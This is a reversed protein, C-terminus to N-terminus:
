LKDSREIFSVVEKVFGEPNEEAVYHAAASVTRAEWKGDEVVESVMEEAEAAHRSHEGSLVLTPVKLKGDRELRARNEKADEPFAAYVEAANKFAGPKSYASVYENIDVLSFADEAYNIKKLFHEVYVREKGEVLAAAMEPVSHFYFQFQQRIREPETTDRRYTSTGPLPCEGFVLSRVRAPFDRALPYAVMAGIDHGVVNVKEKIDLADLLAILDAAMVSKRFDNHSITSSPNPTGSGGAGRYDPAICRYGRRALRPLVHRYQYSTQPFGHILLITGKMVTGNPPAVDRYAMSFPTDSAPSVTTHRIQAM